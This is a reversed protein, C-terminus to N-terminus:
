KGLETDLALLLSRTFAQQPMVGWAKCASLLARLFGLERNSFSIITESGLKGIKM